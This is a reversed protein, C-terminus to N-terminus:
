RDPSGARDLRCALLQGTATAGTRFRSVVRLGTTFSLRDPDLDAAVATHHMLLRVAQYTILYAYSQQAVGDPEACTL